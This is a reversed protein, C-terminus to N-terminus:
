IALIPERAQRKQATLIFVQFNLDPVFYRSFPVSIKSCGFNAPTGMRRNGNETGVYYTGRYASRSEYGKGNPPSMATFIPMLPKPRMPRLTNRADRLSGFRSNTATLSRVSGLVRACKSFYSETRPLRGLLTVAPPPQM